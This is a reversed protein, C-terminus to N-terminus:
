SATAGVLVQGMEAAALEPSTDFQFCATARHDETRYLPPIATACRAMAVPCREVFRCGDRGPIPRITEDGEDAAKGDKEYLEPGGKEGPPADDANRPPPPPPPPTSKEGEREARGPPPLMSERTAVTGCDTMEAASVVSLSM